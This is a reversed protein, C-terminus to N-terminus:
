KNSIGAFVREITSNITTIVDIASTDTIVPIFTPILLNLWNLMISAKKKNDATNM